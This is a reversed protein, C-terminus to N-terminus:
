CLDTNGRTPRSGGIHSSPRFGTDRHNGRRCGQKFFREIARLTIPQKGTQEQLLSANKEIAPKWVDALGMVQVNLEQSFGQAVQWLHSGRGGCGISAINVRDNAGLVSGPSFVQGLTIGAAAASNRKVFDRRNTKTTIM